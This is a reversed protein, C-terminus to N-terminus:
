FSFRESSLNETFISVHLQWIKQVFNLDSINVCYSIIEQYLENYNNQLYSERLRASKGSVIDNIKKFRETNM